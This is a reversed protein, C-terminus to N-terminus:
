RYNLRVVLLIPPAQPRTLRLTLVHEGAGVPGIPPTVVAQGPVIHTDALAMPVMGLPLGGAVSIEGELTSELRLEITDGERLEGPEIPEFAGPDVSDGDRRRLVAWRLPSAVSAGASSVIPGRAPRFKNGAAGSQLAQAVPSRTALTGTAATVEVSTPQAETPPAAPAPALSGMGSPSPAVPQATGTGPSSQRVPASKAPLRRVPAVPKAAPASAPDNGVALPAALPRIAAVERVAHRPRPHWAWYGAFVGISLAAAAALARAPVSWWWWRRRDLAALLRARAAPDSLADRLAEERALADFLGQDQLAAQFLAQREEPTLTGTAYGGVLKKFDGPIV